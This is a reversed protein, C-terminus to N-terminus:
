DPKLARETRTYVPKPKSPMLTIAITPLGGLPSRWGRPDWRSARHSFRAARGRRQGSAIYRQSGCVYFYRGDGIWWEYEDVWLTFPVPNPYRVPSSGSIQKPITDIVERLSIKRWERAKLTTTGTERNWLPDEPSLGWAQWRCLFREEGVATIIIRDRQGAEAEGELIDGVGWGNLDLTERETKGRKM